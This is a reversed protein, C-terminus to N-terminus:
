FRGVPSTATGSLFRYFYETGPSLGTLETKYVFDHEANWNTADAVVQKFTKGDTSLEVSLKGTVGAHSQTGDELRTWVIAATDTADGAAVGTFGVDGRAAAAVMLVLAGVVQPGHMM